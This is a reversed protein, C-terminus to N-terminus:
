STTWARPGKFKYICRDDFQFHGDDVVFVLLGIRNPLAGAGVRRAYPGTLSWSPGYCFFPKPWPPGPQYHHRHFRLAVDPVPEGQELYEFRIIASHRAAAAPWTWPRAAATAPHHAIDFRVGEVELPLHWWSARGTEPDPEAGLDDALWEELEARPGVHAETGRVVFLHDAMQAVPAFVEVAMETITTRMHAILSTGDHSNKDVLDGALVVYLPLNKKLRRTRLQDIYEWTELWKRWVARQSKSPRHESGDDRTVFPPCLGAMSNVHTDGTVVVISAM